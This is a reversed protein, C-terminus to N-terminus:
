ALALSSDVPDFHDSYDSQKEAFDAAFGTEALVPVRELSDALYETQPLVACGRDALDALRWAVRAVVPAVAARTLIRNIGDALYDEVGLYPITLPDSIRERM